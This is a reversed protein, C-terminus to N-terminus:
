RRVTTAAFASAATLAATPTRVGDKTAQWAVIAWGTDIWRTSGKPVGVIYRLRNVCAEDLVGGNEAIDDAAVVVWALDTLSVTREVFGAHSFSHLIRKSM